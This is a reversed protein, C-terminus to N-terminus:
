VSNPCSINNFPGLITSINLYSNLNRKLDFRVLNKRLVLKKKLKKNEYFHITEAM